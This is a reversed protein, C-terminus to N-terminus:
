ELLEADSDPVSVNVPEAENGNDSVPDKHTQSPQSSKYATELRLENEFKDAWKQFAGDGTKEFALEAYQVAENVNKEVYRKHLMLNYFAEKVNQKEYRNWVDVAAQWDGKKAATLSKRFDGDGKITALAYGASVKTPVFTRIFEENIENVLTKLVKGKDPVKSLAENRNGANASSSYTEELDVTKMVEGSRPDVFRYSVSLRGKCEAQYSTHYNGDRDTYSNNKVDRSVDYHDINGTILMEISSDNKAISRDFIKFKNKRSLKGSLDDAIVLSLSNTTYKKELYGWLSWTAGLTGEKFPLVSVNRIHNFSTEPFKTYTLTVDASGGGSLLSNIVSCGNMMVLASVTCLFAKRM